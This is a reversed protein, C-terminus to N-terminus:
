QLDVPVIEGKNNKSSAKRMYTKGCKECEYVRKAPHQDRFGKFVYLHKTTSKVTKGCGNECWFYFKLGLRNVMM